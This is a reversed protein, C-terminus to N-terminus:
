LFCPLLSRRGTVFVNVYNHVVYSFFKTFVSCLLIHGAAIIACVHRSTLASSFLNYFKQRLEAVIHRDVNIQCVPM